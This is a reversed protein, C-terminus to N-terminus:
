RVVLLHIRLFGWGSPQIQQHAGPEAQLDKLSGLTWLVGPEAQATLHPGTAMFAM